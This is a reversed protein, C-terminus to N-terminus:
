SLSSSIKMTYIDKWCLNTIIMGFKKKYIRLSSNESKTTISKSEKFKKSSTKVIRMMFFHITRLLALKYKM